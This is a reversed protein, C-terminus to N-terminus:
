EQWQTGDYHYARVRGTAGLVTVARATSAKTGLAVFITGDVFNNNGDIFAGTTTFKMTPPGGVQGEFYIPSTNGFGMPSDPLGPVLAFQAGGEFTVVVPNPAAGKVVIDTLVVQNNGVFQVQVEHRRSIARMRAGRLQSIMQNMASDSKYGALSSTTGIVAVSALVVVIAAVVVTEIVTFGAQANSRIRATM